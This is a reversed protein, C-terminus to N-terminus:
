NENSYFVPKLTLMVWAWNSTADQDGGKLIEMSESAFMQSYGGQLNIQDSVKYNFVVDLETGLFSDAAQSDSPDMLDGETLFFHLQPIIKFRKGSKVQVYFDRLGVNNIHNGVFFYDMLGNFKHNTGYFPNFAQSKSDPDVQNNGSILEVGLTATSSETLKYGLDLGILSANIETTGDPLKGTQYYANLNATFPSNAWSFRGGITQSFYTDFDSADGGQLGNNLFLLSGSFEDFTKRFWVYQFAKYSNAVSYFTSISRPGDQNYALGVDFQTGGDNFRLLAADHSRAQQAWGVNGFIRHDDYAIEQRGLKISFKDDLFVQGWAEHLTTLAGDDAVLQRQSGWTRVDQLVLRIAYKETKYNVNLRTRQDIFFAEEQDEAALSQFGHRYEARPRYEGSIIFQSHLPPYCFCVLLATLTAHKDM